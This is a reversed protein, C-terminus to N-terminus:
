ADLVGILRHRGPAVDRQILEGPTCRSRLPLKAGAVGALDDPVGGVARLSPQVPHQAPVVVALDDASDLGSHGTGGGAAHVSFEGPDDGGIVLALVQRAFGGGGDDCPEMLDTDVVECRVDVGVV